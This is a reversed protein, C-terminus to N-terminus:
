ISKVIKLSLYIEGAYIIHQARNELLVFLFQKNYQLSMELFNILNYATCMNFTYPDGSFSLFTMKIVSKLQCKEDCDVKGTKTAKVVM